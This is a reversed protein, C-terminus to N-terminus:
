SLLEIRAFIYDLTEEKIILRYFDTQGLREPQHVNYENYKQNKNGNFWYVLFIKGQSIELATIGRKGVGCGSNFLCPVLMNSNYLSSRLGLKPNKNNFYLMEEKLLAIKNKIEAKGQISATTYVRCLKEIEFKITDVKSLSEFLPRHTHGIISILKFKSSFRYANSEVQFKKKSDYATSYNNIGLPKIIFRVIYGFLTNYKELFHHAQHGHYLFLNYQQYNLKVAQHIKLPYRKNIFVLNYDHNGIIKILKNAAQFKKFLSYVKKWRTIISHLTFKQLDEIDGNLVLNFEKKWYFSKLIKKFLKANKAFDDKGGGDGLHLDSFIVYSDENHLPIEPTKTFLDYLNKEFKSKQEM